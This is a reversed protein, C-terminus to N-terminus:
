ISSVLLQSKLFRHFIHKRIIYMSAFYFRGFFGMDFKDLDNIKGIKKPLEPHRQYKGFDGSVIDIKNFLNDRYHYVTDSAAFKGSM